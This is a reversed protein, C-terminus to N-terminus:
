HPFREPGLYFRARALARVVGARGGGDLATLVMRGLIQDQYKAVRCSVDRVSVGVLAM